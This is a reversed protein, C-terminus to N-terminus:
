RKFTFIAVLVSLVVFAWALYTTWHSINEETSKKGRFITQATGGISGSLGESKTTQILVLGVLGLCVLIYIIILLISFGNGAGGSNQVTPLKPAIDAGFWFLTEILAM